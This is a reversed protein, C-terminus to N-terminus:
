NGCTSVPQGPTRGPPIYVHRYYSSSTPTIKSASAYASGGAPATTTTTSPATTSSTASGGSGTTGAFRHGTVLVLDNGSLSSDPQLTAGGALATRLTSAADRGAPGYRVVNATYTFSPADSSSSVTFGAHQLETSATGAQYPAGSGNEVAVSITGHPITTSTTTSTGAKHTTTPPPTRSAPSAQGYTRFETVQAADAAPVAELISTGNVTTGNVTPYTWSPIGASNLHHFDAALSVLDNFSFGSDLTLNSALSTVISLLVRPNGLDGNRQAKHLANRIFAQQRQIRGLDAEPALQLVAQGSNVLNQEEGSTISKAGPVFDYFRSRAFGLAQAGTLVQCGAQAVFLGSEIDFAPTPFYQPVGGIANAIQELTDFNVAAFHNIPIHLDTEITQVLRTANGGAYAANIKSYGVGPVQVMLDRPISLLAVAHAAPVIRALVISDGLSEPNTSTNGIGLGTATKLKRTDSGVILMTFAPPYHHGKAVVGSGTRLLGGVSKHHISDVIRVAYVAGAASAAIVIFTLINAVLLIRRPWRRLGHSRSRYHRGATTTTREPSPLLESADVM